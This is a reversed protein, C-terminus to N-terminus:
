WFITATMRLGHKIRVLGRFGDHLKPRRLDIGRRTIGSRPRGKTIGRHRPIHKGPALISFFASNLGPVKSLGAATKPCLDCILESRDGFGWLVVTRWLDDPSIRKQDPSIEQFLPLSSRRQLLVDLESAMEQLTAGRAVLPELQARQLGGRPAYRKRGNAVLDYKAVWYGVTSADRGVLAGIQPLSMGDVLYRELQSKDVGRNQVCPRVSLAFM